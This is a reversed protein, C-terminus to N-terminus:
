RRGKDEISQIALKIEELVRESSNKEHTKLLDGTDKNGIKGMAWATMGKVRDDM